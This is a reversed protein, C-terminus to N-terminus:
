GNIIREVLIHLQGSFLAFGIIVLQLTIFWSLLQYWVKKRHRKHFASRKQYAETAALLAGHYLGYSLYDVTLGHWAGMLAMDVVYAACACSLRSAFVKRKTAWRVFRM